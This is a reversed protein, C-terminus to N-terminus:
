SANRTSVLGDPRMRGIFISRGIFVGVVEELPIFGALVTMSLRKLKIKNM